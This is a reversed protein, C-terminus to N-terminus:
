DADCWCAAPSRVKNGTNRSPLFFFLGVFICVCRSDGLRPPPCCIFLCHTELRGAPSPKINALRAVNVHACACRGRRAAIVSLMLKAKASKIHLRVIVPPVFLRSARVLPGSPFLPIMLSSKGDSSRASCNCPIFIFLPPNQM